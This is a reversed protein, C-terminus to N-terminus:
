KNGVCLPTLYDRTGGLFKLLLIELFVCDFLMYFSLMIHREFM